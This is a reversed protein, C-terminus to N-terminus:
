NKYSYLYDLFSNLHNKDEPSLSNYKVLFENIELDHSSFNKAPTPIDTRELLYDTSCHFYNALKMLNDINPKSKGMEYHSILEQSVEIETSLRVQTINRKERLKKLNNMKFNKNDM